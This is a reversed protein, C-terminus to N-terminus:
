WVLMMLGTNQREYTGMDVIREAIRPKGRLDVATAMWDANTGTNNELQLEVAGGGRVPASCGHYVLGLNQFALERALNTEFRARGRGPEHSIVVLGKGYRKMALCNARDAVPYVSQGWTKDGLNLVPYHWPDKSISLGAINPFANTLGSVQDASSVPAIVLAEGQAVRELLAAGEAADTVRDKWTIGASACGSLLVSSVVSLCCAIGKM